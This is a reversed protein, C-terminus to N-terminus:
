STRVYTSDCDLLPPLGLARANDDIFPGTRLLCSVDRSQQDPKQGKAPFVVLGLSTSLPKAPAAAETQAVAASGTGLRPPTNGM